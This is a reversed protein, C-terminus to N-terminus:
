LLYFGVCLVVNCICVDHYRERAEVSVVKTPIRCIPLDYLEMHGWVHLHFPLFSASGHKYSLSASLPPQPLSRLVQWWSWWALGPFQMARAGAIGAM